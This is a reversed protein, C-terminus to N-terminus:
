STFVAQVIEGDIYDDITDSSIASSMIQFAQETAQLTKELENDGHSFSICIRDM